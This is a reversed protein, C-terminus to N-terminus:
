KKEERKIGNFPRPPEKPADQVKEDVDPFYYFNGKVRHPKGHKPKVDVTAKRMQKEMKLVVNAAKRQPDANPGGTGLGAAKRFANGKAVQNPKLLQAARERAKNEAFYRDFDPNETELNRGFKERGERASVMPDGRQEFVRGITAPGRPPRVPTGRFGHKRAM